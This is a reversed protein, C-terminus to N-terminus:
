AAPTASRRRRCTKTMPPPLPEATAAPKTKHPPPLPEAVATPKTTPQPPSRLDRCRRTKDYAAPIIEYLTPDDQKIFEADFSKLEQKASTATSDSSAVAAAAIAAHKNCYEIVMVLINSKVDPLPVGKDDVCDKEMMHKITQSM